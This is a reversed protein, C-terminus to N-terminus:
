EAARAGATSAAGTGGRGNQSPSSPSTPRGAYVGLLARFVALVQPLTIAEPGDAKMAEAWRKASEPRLVAQLFTIARHISSRSAETADAMETPTLADEGEAMAKLAARVQTDSGGGAAELVVEAPPNPVAYYVAGNLPVEIDDEAPKLNTFDEIQM